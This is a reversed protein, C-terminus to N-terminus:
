RLCARSASVTLSGAPRLPLGAKRLRDRLREYWSRPVLVTKEVVLGSGDFTLVLWSGDDYSWDWATLPYAWTKSVHYPKEGLIERVQEKTMGLQIEKSSRSAESSSTLVFTAVVALGLVAPVGWLLLKRRRTMM